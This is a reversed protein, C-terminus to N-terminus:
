LPNDANTRKETGFVADLNPAFSHIFFWMKVFFVLNWVNMAPNPAPTTSAVKTTVGASVNFTLNIWSLNDGYYFYM